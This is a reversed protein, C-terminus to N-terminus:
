PGWLNQSLPNQGKVRDKSRWMIREQRPQHKGPNMDNGQKSGKRGGRWSATWARCLLLAKLSQTRGVEGAGWGWEKSTGKVGPSHVATPTVGLLCYMRGGPVNNRGLQGTRFVEADGGGEWWVCVCVSCVHMGPKYRVDVMLVSYTNYFNDIKGINSSAM